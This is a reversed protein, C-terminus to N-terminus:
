RLRGTAVPSLRTGGVGDSAHHIASIAYGKPTVYDTWWPGVSGTLPSADASAWAVHHVAGTWAHWADTQDVARDFGCDLWVRKAYLGKPKTSDVRLGYCNM